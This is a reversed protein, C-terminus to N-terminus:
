ECGKLKNYARLIAVVDGSAMASQAEEIANRIMTAGFLGVPGLDIYTGLLEQCRRLEKPLADGLTEIQTNM